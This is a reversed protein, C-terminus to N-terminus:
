SLTRYASYALVGAAAAYVAAPFSAVLLASAPGPRADVLVVLYFLLDYLWKGAFLYFALFVPSYGSFLERTRSGLFALVALVLASAGFTDPIVAGELLGLLFGVGAAWGARMHRAALLAAVVLLDPVLWGLGLAIRLIFHLVVLILVLAIMAARPAGNM